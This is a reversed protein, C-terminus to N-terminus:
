FKQTIEAFLGRRPGYQPAFEGIGTAARLVYVHDFLNLASLRLTLPRVDSHWPYFYRGVGANFQTYDPSHQENAFGARLGSGYMGDVTVFMERWRYSVGSSATNTQADSAFTYTSAIYAFEVPDDILYQNSIVDKVKTIEHSYNAYVRLGDYQYNLKLEAGKSYGLAYNFQSLVVANGFTGDDLMNTGHKYYVDAGASFAPTVKQELGLDIYNAREPRVPDELPIAAQQTTNGFLAINNPTAQAQMPPTFYRSFGGHLTTDATPEYVLAIRPSVQNASVFQKLEDFRLGTNLTLNSRLRWEDQAYVGATWGVKPTYDNITTPAPLVTGDPLVPLVTAVDYVQTHETTAVFGARLTHADSAHYAADFQVGNLLSKRVVNAAVDNFALDYYPDPMFNISAYRSYLSFQMDLADRHTQLAALAFFSRDKENENIDASSLTSPGYDGLPAEGSANPIQFRGVWVGTMYTLRNEDNLLTSGYGFFREQATDDHVPNATPMANELGQDSQLYRGSLFYETTETSGGYEVSPSVTAWTGGYLDFTGGPEFQSKTTIDVVGATRLGYQAPLTGDLLSMRGVFDTGLLPGLASVGDPLQIGNIRYAVNAYENRVHFDPNSIASDYSVGPIQLVVKDLPTNQGQPLSQLAQQDISYDSAGLKPLLAKDRAADFQASKRQLRSATVVVETLRDKSSDVAATSAALLLAPEEAHVPLLSGAASTAAWVALGPLM